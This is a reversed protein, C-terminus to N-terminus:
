SNMTRPSITIGVRLNNKIGLRDNSVNFKAIVPLASTVPTTEGANRYEASM